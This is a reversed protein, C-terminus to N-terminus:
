GRRGLSSDENMVEMFTKISQSPVDAGFVASGAVLVDAGLEVLKGANDHCVGGDVEILADSNSSMILEKLERVKDFTKDIFKQGGFGPNVSMILVLDVDNIIYKLNQVPTHPNISVGARMGHNKIQQVTRHLHKTAEYHVTYMDAGAKSFAEIYRSPEEIMLHVDFFMSTIKRIDKILVPGFTINPVFMGDMVDLHLWNVGSKELMNIDKELNAFNASLLSPSLERM